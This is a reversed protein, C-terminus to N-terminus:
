FRYINGKVEEPGIEEALLPSPSGGGGSIHAWFVVGAVVYDSALAAGLLFMRGRRWTAAVRREERQMVEPDAVRLNLGLYLDALSFYAVDQFLIDIVKPAEESEPDGAFGRVLLKSHGAGIAWPKFRGELVLPLSGSITPTSTM